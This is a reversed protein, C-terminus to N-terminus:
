QEGEPFLNLDGLFGDLLEMSVSSLLVKVVGTSIEVSLQSLLAREEPDPSMGFRASFGLRLALALSGSLREDSPYINFFLSFDGDPRRRLALGIIDILPSGDPNEAPLMPMLNHILDPNTIWIALAADNRLDLARKIHSNRSNDELRGLMEDIKGRSLIIEDNSLAVLELNDPGSWRYRSLVSRKWDKGLGAGLFNKPWIGISALHLPAEAMPVPNDQGSEFELGLALLATRDVVTEFERPDMGILEVLFNVLDLNEPVVMRVIIDSEEPLWNVIDRYPGQPITRCSSFLVVLVPVIIRIKKLGTM